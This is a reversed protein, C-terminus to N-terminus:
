AVEKAMLEANDVMDFAKNKNSINEFHIFAYADSKNNFIRYDMGNPLACGKGRLWVCFWGQKKDKTVSYVKM